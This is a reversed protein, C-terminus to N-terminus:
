HRGRELLNELLRLDARFSTRRLREVVEPLSILEREAARALIGLLGTIKLGRAKAAQRAKLDDLIIFDAQLEEALHIAEREGPDLQALDEPKAPSPKAIGLWAPPSEIWARILPDAEPHGLEIAVAEPILIHGFLIPLLEIHGLLLLYCVPSTDSVVKM